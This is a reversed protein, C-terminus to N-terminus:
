TTTLPHVEIDTRRFDNGICLVPTDSRMSLAYTFCDGFNLAAPHRGKGFARWGDIADLATENTVDIIGISAERIVRQVLTAGHAGLRAEAVLTSEVLSVASMVSGTSAALADALADANQEDLVIAVIASTDVVLNM